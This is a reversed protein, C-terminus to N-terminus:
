MSCGFSAYADRAADMALRCSEGMMRRSSAPMDRWADIADRFAKRTMDRVDEPMQDLCRWMKDVFEDCEAVGIPPPRDAAAAVARGAPVGNVRSVVACGGGRMGGASRRELLVGEIRRGAKSRLRLRDGGPATLEVTRPARSSTQGRFTIPLPSGSQETAVWRSGAREIRLRREKSSGDVEGACSSFVATYTVAWDNALPSSRPAPRRGDADAAGVAVLAAAGVIATAARHV